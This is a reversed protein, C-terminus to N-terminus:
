VTPPWVRGEHEQVASQAWNELANLDTLPGRNVIRGDSGVVFCSGEAGPGFLKSIQKQCDSLATLQVKGALECEKVAAVSRQVSEGGSRISFVVVRTSPEQVRGALDMIQRCRECNPWDPDNPFVVITVTGRTASFANVKGDEDLFAFDPCPYGPKVDGGYVLGTRAKHTTACGSILLMLAATGLLFGSQHTNM